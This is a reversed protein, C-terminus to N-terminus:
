EVAGRGISEVGRAPDIFVVAPRVVVAIRVSIVSEEGEQM